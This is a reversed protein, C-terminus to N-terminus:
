NLSTGNKYFPPKVIIAEKRKGRIDLEISQGIKDHPKDIYGLGIGKKLSPSQTGSTVIGIQENNSYILNGKRPIARETMEFSLLRRTLNAKKIALSDQGIFQTKKMKTIWGLGAELPHTDENIDNGYLCYMMEMRLTDRAGLGAPQIGFSSGANMVEDWINTISEPNFYLEFGLEGTYGTRSITGRHGLIEGEIFNYFEIQSLDESTCKQLIERSKPGQIAILGITHSIDNIFVDQSQHSKLWELDKEHNAANTVLMFYDEYKYIIIDDIIGGDNMCMATYQAYGIELSSVDNITLLNLFSEAGSGSISIEGMHSVDFLGSANRVSEHESVIGNYQVPMSFGAFPIMKAGFAIHRSHLPSQKLELNNM